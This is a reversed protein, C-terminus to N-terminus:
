GAESGAEWATEDASLSQDIAVLLPHRPGQTRLEELIGNLAAISMPYGLPQMQHADPQCHTFGSHDITIAKLDGEM